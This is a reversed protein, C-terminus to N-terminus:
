NAITECGKLYVYLCTDNVNDVYNKPWIKFNWFKWIIIVYIAYIIGVESNVKKENEYMCTLVCLLIYLIVIFAIICYAHAWCIELFLQITYHICYM